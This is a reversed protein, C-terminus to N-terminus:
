GLAAARALDAPLEGPPTRALAPSQEGHLWAAAPDRGTALALAALPAFIARQVAQPPRTFRLVDCYEQALAALWLPTPMGKANTRGSNALGFGAEIMEVFRAAMPGSGPTADVEVRVQAVGEGANWWDHATGSQVEVTEGASATHRKGDLSVGLEGDVITFREVIHDHVHEGMVAAGPALWLSAVGHLGETDDPSVDVRAFEKTKVNEFWSGVAPM